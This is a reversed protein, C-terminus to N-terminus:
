IHINFKSHVKPIAWVFINKAIKKHTLKFMAFDNVRVSWPIIQYISMTEKLSFKYLTLIANLIGLYINTRKGYWFGLIIYSHNPM